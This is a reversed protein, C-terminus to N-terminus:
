LLTPLVARQPSPHLHTRGSNIIANPSGPCHSEPQETAEPNGDSRASNLVVLPPQPLRGGQHLQEGEGWAVAQVALLGHVGEPGVRASLCGRVVQALGEM